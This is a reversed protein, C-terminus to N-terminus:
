KWSMKKNYFIKIKKFIEKIAEKQKERWILYKSFLEEINFFNAKDWELVCFDEIKKDVIVWFYNVRIIKIESWINDKQFMFDYNYEETTLDINLEEMIERILAKEPTEWKKLWGWFFWWMEWLKSINKRDQVLIEWKKNFLILCSVERIINIKEM